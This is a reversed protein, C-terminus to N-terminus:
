RGQEVAALPVQPDGPGPRRHASPRRVRTLVLLRASHGPEAGRGRGVPQGNADVELLCGVAVVGLARGLIRVDTM